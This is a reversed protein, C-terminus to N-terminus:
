EGGAPVVGLKALEAAVAAEHKDLDDKAAAPSWRGAMLLVLPLFVIEGAVCVWWWTQWQHPSSKAAAAVKPGETLVYHLEPSVKAVAQLKAIGVEKIALGLLAPPADTVKPYRALEAFLKPHAEVIALEPAIAKATAAVTAGQEVLPTVSSVVFPLVFFSVSVVIRLIWGWVALGTATLAPNEAEVTETFSAMWPTYAIGLGAALLSIIVVFEYYSTHPQTAKTLFVITMVAALVGGVIMFPKRVRLRDSLLGVIVLVVANVGWYWTDIGNAATLSFGFITAFYITFFGVAAYYILLLVSVAFASAVINLKLVQRWPHALTAEVDVGKARAEILARDHMSVMLQDRLQPSLERLGLFCAVFMVIGVVGCIEYQTRWDALTPALPLTHNAVLAVVLSGCVPGLTWFGMATARGVQPSFDRVLAPTAVLIIGEVFGVLVVLTAFVYENSTNPIAFAVLLGTLLLGYVVLNARGFRDSLGAILSAFAGVLNSVVSINVYFLFSMKFDGIILTAVSAGVYLEYYLVVTTLVVLTLSFIRMGTDPYHALKRDWLGGVWGTRDSGAAGLTATGSM